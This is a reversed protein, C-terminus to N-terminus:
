QKQLVIAGTTPLAPSRPAMTLQSGSVCYPYRNEGDFTLVDGSTKYTGSTMPDSAATGMGGTQKITAVCTCGGDAADTCTAASDGMVGFIVSLNDCTVRTGSFMICTEALSYQVSGTTTTKDSYTGNAMALWAGIVQLSGAVRARTCGLGFLSIDAEGTVTLCSSTVNWTGVVDGGCAKADACTTSSSTGGTSGGSAKTGGLSIAGGAGGSGGLPSAGGLPKSGGTATATATAASSGGVGGSGGSGGVPKSTSTPSGSSAGGSEAQSSSTGGAGAGGVATSSAPSSQGGSSAATTSPGGTGGAGDPSADASAGLGSRGCATGLSAALLLAAVLGGCRLENAFVSNMV